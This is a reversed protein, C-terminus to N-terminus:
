KVPLLESLGADVTLNEEGAGLTIVDSCGSGAHGSALDAGRNADSDMATDNGQMFGTMEYGGPATFCVRYNGARLDEFLYYGPKGDKDATQMDAVKVYTGTGNEKYLEVTAGNIGKVEPEDQIGNKNEDVWVYNGISGLVLGADITLNEEGAGLTIEGSCGTGTRGAVLSESADADSDLATDSGQLEGTLAYGAPAEFCVRYNGARLDDFLYYGPKGDKDTTRMDAVKVYTGTSNEKYLEVTAGNVGNEETEDQIGNKNSDVWVYNGLSGLLPDNAVTIEKDPNSADLTIVQENHVSLEYGAPAQEEVLKYDTFLLHDFTVEGNADTTAIQILQGNSQFYLSFVAGQLVESPDDVDVKTVTLSGVTGSGSGSGGSLQIQYNKNSNTTGSLIGTGRFDVENSVTEGHSAQIFSQYELIYPQDFAQTFVIEFSRSGNGDDIMQLTYDTDKVLENSSNKTVNGHIDVNTEYVHFTDDLLIQNTSPTDIIKMGAPLSSQGRNIWVEWDMKLGDQSGDKYVYETGHNVPVSATWSAEEAAGDFLKATNAYNGDVLQNALTTKYTVWYPRHIANDFTIEFGPNGLGDNITDNLTFGSTIENGKQVGNAGGTLNMEYVQISGPVREQGQLIFDEVSANSYANLNYNLGIDWTIEKTVANYSGYKFGNNQTYGDPNFVAQITKTTQAISSEEWAIEARNSFGQGSHNRAEPDFSTTYTISHMNSITNLFTIEFGGYVHDTVTYDAGVTLPHNGEDTISLSGPVLAMGANPYTDTIVVNEMSYDDRNFTLNWNATKNAYDISQNSKELIGQRINRNASKTIAESTMTVENTMQQDDYVKDTMKTQYVIKYPKQVAQNFQFIFGDGTGYETITYQSANVLSQGTENGNGPDLTVEYVEFSPVLLDVALGQSTSFTDELKADTQSISKSNYNYQIEWEVTQTSREYGSSRKNLPEGRSISVSSTANRQIGGDATITATNSFLRNGDWDATIDSTFKVRYAKDIKGLSLDLASSTSHDTYAGANVLAGQTVTGDLEVHLEYIEISGTDLELGSELVDSLNANQIVDLRKNVDITWVIETGNYGSNPVGSKEILSGSEPKLKIPIIKGVGAIDPFVLNRDTSGTLDERIVSWVKLEGGINSLIEINHNFTMMVLNNSKLVTFTGVDGNPTSLPLPSIDNYLEFESPLTFEFTDGATAGHGNPLEWNYHLVTQTELPYRNEPHYVADIVTIEDTETLKVDTLNVPAAAAEAIPMGFPVFMHIILMGILIATLSQQWMQRNGQKQRRREDMRNMM